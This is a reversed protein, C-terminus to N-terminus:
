HGTIVMMIPSWWQYHYSSILLLSSLLSSSSVSSSSLLKQSISADTKILVEGSTMLDSLHIHGGNNGCVPTWRCQPQSWPSCRGPSLTPAPSAGAFLPMTLTQCGEWSRLGFGAQVSSHSGGTQCCIPGLWGGWCQLSKGALTHCHVTQSLQRCCDAVLHIPFWAKGMVNYTGLYIQLTRQLPPILDFSFTKTFRQTDALNGPDWRLIFSSRCLSGVM